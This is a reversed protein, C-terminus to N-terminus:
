NAPYSIGALRPTEGAPTHCGALMWARCACRALVMALAIARRAYVLTLAAQVLARGPGGVLACGGHLWSHV